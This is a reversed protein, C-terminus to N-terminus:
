CRGRRWDGSGDRVAGHDAWGRAGSKELATILGVCTEFLTFGSYHNVFQAHSVSLDYILIKIKLHFVILFQNKGSYVFMNTTIGTM